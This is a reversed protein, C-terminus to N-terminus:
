NNGKQKPALINKRTVSQRQSVYFQSSHTFLLPYTNLFLNINKSSSITSPKDSSNVNGYKYKTTHLCIITFKASLSHLIPKVRYQSITLFKWKIQSRSENCYLENYFYTVNLCVINEIVKWYVM